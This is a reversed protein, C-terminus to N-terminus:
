EGGLKGFYSGVFPFRLYGIEVWITCCVFGLQKSDEKDVSPRKRHPPSTRACPQSLRVQNRVNNAYGLIPPGVTPSYPAGCHPFLPAWQPLIPPGVTHYIYIYIYLYYIDIYIDCM